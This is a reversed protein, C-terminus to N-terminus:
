SQRAKTCPWAWRPPTTHTSPLPNGFQKWHAGDWAAIGTAPVGDVSSFSGAALLEGSCEVLSTVTASFGAAEGILRWSAGNWEFIGTSDPAYFGGQGAEYLRGRYMTLAEPYFSLAGLRTWQNGTLRYLSTPSLTSDLFPGGVYLTDGRVLMTSISQSGGSIPPQPLSQWRSGDWQALGKADLWQPPDGAYQFDGSAILHGRYEALSLVSALSFGTTFGRMRDNWPVLDYWLGNSYRVISFAHSNASPNVEEVSGCIWLNSDDSFMSGSYGQFEPHDLWTNGDWSMLTGSLSYLTDQVVALADTYPLNPGLWTWVSGDWEAINSADLSGFVNLNGAVVLHGQFSSMAYVQGVYGYENKLILGSGVAEWSSGNWRAVLSDPSGG